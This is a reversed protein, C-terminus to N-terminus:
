TKPLRFPQILSELNGLNVIPERKFTWTIIISNSAVCLADLVPSVAIHDYEIKQSPKQLQSFRSGYKSRSHTAYNLLASYIGRGQTYGIIESLCEIITYIKKYIESEISANEDKQDQNLYKKRLDEIEYTAELIKDKKQTLRQYLLIRENDMHINHYTM